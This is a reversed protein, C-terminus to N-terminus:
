RTISITEGLEAHPASVTIRSTSANQMVMYGTFYSGETCDENCTNEGDTPDVPIESLYVPVICPRIDYGDTKKMETSTAPIDGAACTFIGRKDALNQGMADLIAQVNSVRQSNRAQAFQRAPNIAVIVVAALIAIIGMVILLEILTFGRRTNFSSFTM